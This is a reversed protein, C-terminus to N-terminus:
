RIEVLKSELARVGAAMEKLNFIFSWFPLMRDLTYPATARANRLSVLEQDVQEVIQDLHSLDLQQGQQNIASSLLLLGASIQGGLDELHPVFGPVIGAGVYLDSDGAMAMLRQRIHDAEDVFSGYADHDLASRGPENRTEELARTVARRHQLIAQALEDLIKPDAKGQFVGQMVAGSLAGCDRLLLALKGLLRERAHVPWVLVGVGFAIVAGMATYLVRYWALEWPQQQHSFFLVLAVTFGAVNLSPHRTSLYGFISALVFLLIGTRVPGIGILAAVLAASLAGCTTGITRYLAAQWSAGLNAQTVVLASFVAWYGERLHFKAYIAYAIVGALGTKIGQKVKPSLM